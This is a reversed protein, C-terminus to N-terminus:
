NHIEKLTVTFSYGHTYNNFIIGGPYIRGGERRYNYYSVRWHLTNDRYHEKEVLHGDAGAFVHVFVGNGSVQRFLLRDKKKKIEAEPAPIVDFYVRRMDEGIRRSIDGQRELEKLMFHTDVGNENASLEFLKVGMPNMGAVTLSKAPINVDVYGLATFKNWGYKFLIANLVQFQEPLSGKYKEVVALPDVGSM